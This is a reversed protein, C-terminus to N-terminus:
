GQDLGLVGALLTSDQDSIPSTFIMLQTTMTTPAVGDTSEETSGDTSAEGDPAAAASLSVSSVMAARPGVEQLDRLFYLQAYPLGTTQITIPVQLLGAPIAAGTASQTAAVPSGVSLNDIQVGRAAAHQTLERNFDPLAADTPLAAVAARVEGELGTRDAAAASLTAAKAVLLDNQAVIAATDDRLTQADARTPSVVLFWTVAAMILAGVVGAIVWPRTSTSLNM